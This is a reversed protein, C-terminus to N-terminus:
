HSKNSDLWKVHFRDDPHLNRRRQWLKQYYEAWTEPRKDYPVYRIRRPRWLVGLPEFRNHICCICM